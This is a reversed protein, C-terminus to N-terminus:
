LERGVAFRCDPPAPLTSLTPFHVPGSLLGHSALTPSRAKPQGFQAWEGPATNPASVLANWRTAAMIPVFCCFTLVIGLLHLKAERM